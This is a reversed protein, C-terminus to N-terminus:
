TGMFGQRQLKEVIDTIAYGRVNIYGREGSGWLNGGYPDDPLPYHSSPLATMQSIGALFTVNALLPRIATEDAKVKAALGDLRKRLDMIQAQLAANSVTTM